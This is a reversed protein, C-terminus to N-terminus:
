LSVWQGDKRYQLDVAGHAPESYDHLPAFCSESDTWDEPSDSAWMLGKAQVFGDDDVTRWLQGEKRAKAVLDPTADRPGFEEDQVPKLKWSGSADLDGVHTIVFCYEVGVEALHAWQAEQAMRKSLM